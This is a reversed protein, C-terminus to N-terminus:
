KLDVPADLLLPRCPGLGLMNTRTSFDVRDSAIGREVSSTLTLWDGNNYLYKGSASMRTPHWELM